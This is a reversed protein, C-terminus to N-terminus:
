GTTEWLFSGDDGLTITLGVRTTGYEDVVEAFGRGEQKNASMVVQVSKVTAHMDDADLQKQFDALTQSQIEEVTLKEAAPKTQTVAPKSAPTSETTASGCGAAGLAGVALAAVAFKRVTM